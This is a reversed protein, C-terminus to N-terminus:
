DSSQSPIIRSPMGAVATSDTSLATFTEGDSSAWARPIGSRVTARGFRSPTNFLSADDFSSRKARAILRALSTNSSGAAATLQSLDDFAASSPLAGSCRSSVSIPPSLTGAGRPPMSCPTNAYGAIGITQRIVVALNARDAKEPSPAVRRHLGLPHGHDVRRRSLRERHQLHEDLVLRESRAVDHDFRANRASNRNIADADIIQGESLRGHASFSAREDPMALGM